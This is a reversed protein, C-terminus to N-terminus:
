SSIFAMETAISSEIGPERSRPATLASFIDTSLRLGARRSRYRGAALREGHDDPPGLPRFPGAVAPGLGSTGFLGVWRGESIFIPPVIGPSCAYAGKRTMEAM